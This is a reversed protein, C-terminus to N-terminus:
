SAPSSSRVERRPPPLKEVASGGEIRAVVGDSGLWRRVATLADSFTVGAKGPWNIAGVRRDTPLEHSLSAVVADLGFRCPTVRLVTARSGGRATELRPCSRVEPFTTEIKWRGTDSAILRQAELGVDTTSFSEDRRTGQPDHVVIGLIPVLGEGSRDGHGTGAVTGVRRTGGGYWGVTRRIRRGAASVAARPKPCRQGQVRPRGKGSWRPPSEFRNAAPHLQSVLCLRDRHGYVFRAVERTGSALAGVVVFRHDPFWRLMLRLLRIRHRAPTRHGHRERRDGQEDQDLAVLVPLAWPRNAFPFRVLVAIGGVQPRLAMRHFGSVFRLLNAVNRRGTALIAAGLLVLFRQYTPQTFVPALSVLLSLSEDPLLAM